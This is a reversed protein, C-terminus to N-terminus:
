KKTEGNLFDKQEELAKKLEEAQIKKSKKEIEKESAKMAALATKDRRIIREHTMCPYITFRDKNEDVRIKYDPTGNDKFTQEKIKGTLIDGTLFKFTVIDGVNYLHKKAM